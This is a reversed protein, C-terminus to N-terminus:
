GGLLFGSLTPIVNYIGNVFNLVELQVSNPYVICSVSVNHVCGGSDWVVDGEGGGKGNVDWLM